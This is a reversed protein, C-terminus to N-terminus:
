PENSASVSRSVEERDDVSDGAPASSETSEHVRLPPMLPSTSPPSAPFITSNTPCPSIPVTILSHHSTFFSPVPPPNLSPLQPLSAVLRLAAVEARFALRHRAPPPCQWASFAAPSPARIPLRAPFPTHSYLNGTQHGSVRISTQPARVAASVRPPVVNGGTRFARVPPARELRNKQAGRRIVACRESM